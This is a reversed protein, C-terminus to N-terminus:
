RQKGLFTFKIETPVQSQDHFKDKVGKLTILKEAVGRLESSIANEPVDDGAEEAALFNNVEEIANKVMRLNNVSLSSGEGLDLGGNMDFVISFPSDIKLTKGFFNSLAVGIDQTLENMERAAAADADKSQITYADSKDLGGIIVNHAYNVVDGHYDDHEELIAEGLYKAGERIASDFLSTLVKKAAATSKWDDGAATKVESVSLTGTSSINLSFDTIQQDTPTKSEEYYQKLKLFIFEKFKEAQTSLDRKENTGESVIGRKISLLPRTASSNADESTADSTAPANQREAYVSLEHGIEPSSKLFKQFAESEKVNGVNAQVEDLSFGNQDLFNKLVQTRAAQIKKSNLVPTEKELERAIEMRAKQTKIREVLSPDDNILKALEKKQKARINGEVIIKGEADEAFTIKKTVDGLGAKEMLKGIDKSLQESENTILSNLSTLLSTKDSASFQGGLGLMKGLAAYTKDDNGADAAAKAAVAARVDFSIEVTDIVPPKWSTADPVRDLDLPPRDPTERVNVSSKPRYGSATASYSSYNASSSVTSM